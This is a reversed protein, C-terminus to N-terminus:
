TNRWFELYEGKKKVKSHNCCPILFFGQDICIDIPKVHVLNKKKKLTNYKVRQDRWRGGLSTYKQTIYEDYNNM